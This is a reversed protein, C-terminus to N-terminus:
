QRFTNRENERQLEIDDKERQKEARSCVTPPLTSTLSALTACHSDSVWRCKEREGGLSARDGAEGERRKRRGILNSKKKKRSLRDKEKGRQMKRNRNKERGRCDMHCYLFM